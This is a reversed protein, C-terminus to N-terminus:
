FTMDGEFLGAKNPNLNWLYLRCWIAFRYTRLLRQLLEVRPDFVPKLLASSRLAVIQVVGNM